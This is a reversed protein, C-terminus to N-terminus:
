FHQFATIMENLLCGHINECLITIYVCNGIDNVVMVNYCSDFYNPTYKGVTKRIHLYTLLTPFLCYTSVQIQMKNLSTIVCYENQFPSTDM